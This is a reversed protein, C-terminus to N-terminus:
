FDVKLGISTNHAVLSASIGIQAGAWYYRYKEPLSFFVVNKIAMSAMTYRTVASVSPHDGLIPNVERFAEPNRAINLTQGYDIVQLGNMLLLFILAKM